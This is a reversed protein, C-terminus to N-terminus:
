PESRENFLPARFVLVVSDFPAPTNSCGFKLRGRLFRIEDANIAYEHWWRTGTRSPVLYVAVDAERAKALWPRINSYPPNCYVRHGSWSVSLGDSGFLPLGGEPNLPCPDLTFSFEANLASFLGSPTAWNDGGRVRRAIRYAEMRNVEGREAVLM